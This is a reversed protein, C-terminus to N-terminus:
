DIEKPGDNLAERAIKRWRAYTQSSSTSPMRTVLSVLYVLYMKVLRFVTAVFLSSCYQLQM